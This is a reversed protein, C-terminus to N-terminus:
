LTEPIQGSKKDNAAKRWELLSRYQTRPPFGRYFPVFPADTKPEKLEQEIQHVEALFQADSWGTTDPGDVAPM